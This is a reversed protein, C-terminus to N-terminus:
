VTKLIGYLSVSSNTEFDGAEPVLTISSIVATDDWKPTELEAGFYGSNNNGAGSEGSGIKTTASTYNGFYVDSCQFSNSTSRADNARLFIKNTLGANNDQYLTTNSQGLRVGSYNTSSSNVTLYMGGANGSNRTSTKLLLDTYTAPIGSITISATASNLTTTGILRYTNAM